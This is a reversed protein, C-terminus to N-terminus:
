GLYKGLRPLSSPLEGTSGSGIRNVVRCDAFTDFLLPTKRITYLDRRNMVCLGYTVRGGGRLRRRKKRPRRLGVLIFPFSPPFGGGSLVFRSFYNRRLQPQPPNPQRRRFGQCHGRSIYPPASVKEGLDSERRELMLCEIGPQLNNWSAAKLGTAVDVHAQVICISRYLLIQM